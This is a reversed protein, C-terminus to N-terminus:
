LGWGQFTTCTIYCWLVFLITLLSYIVISVIIIWMCIKLIRNNPYKVRGFIMVVIGALTLLGSFSSIKSANEVLLFSIAPGSFYLILSLVGLLDGQSNNVSNNQKNVNSNVQINNAIQKGCSACFVSDSYNSEGCNPCVISDKM